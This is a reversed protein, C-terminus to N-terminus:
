THTTTTGGTGEDEALGLLPLNWVQTSFYVLLHHGFKGMGSAVGASSGDLPVLSIVYYQVLCSSLICLVIYTCVHHAHQLGVRVKVDVDQAVVGQGREDEGM